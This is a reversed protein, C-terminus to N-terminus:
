DLTLDIIDNDEEEVVPSGHEAAAEQLALVAHAASTGAGDVGVIIKVPSTVKPSKAAPKSRPIEEEAPRKGLYKELARARAAKIEEDESEESETEGDQRDDDQESTQQAQEEEEQQRREEQAQRLREQATELVKKREELNRRRDEQVALAKALGEEAAALEEALEQEAKSPRGRKKGTIGGEAPNPPTPLLLHAAELIQELRWM